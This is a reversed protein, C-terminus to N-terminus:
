AEWFKNDRAEGWLEDGKRSHRLAALVHNLAFSDVDPITTRLYDNARARWEKYNAAM